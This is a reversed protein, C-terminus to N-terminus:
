TPWQLKKKLEENQKELENIREHMKEYLYQAPVDHSKHERGTLITLALNFGNVMGTHYPSFYLRSPIELTKKINELTRITQTIKIAHSGM